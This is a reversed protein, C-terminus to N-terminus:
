GMDGEVFFISDISQGLLNSIRFALELSPNYNEKELAIVTARTIGLAEAFEQQTLGREKRLSQIHNKIGIKSTIRPM